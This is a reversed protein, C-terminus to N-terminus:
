VGSCEQGLSNADAGVLSVLNWKTEMSNADSSVDNPALTLEVLALSHGGTKIKIQPYFRYTIEVTNANITIDRWFRVHM